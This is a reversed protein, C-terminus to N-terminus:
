QVNPATGGTIVQNLIEQVFIAHIHIHRAVDPLFEAVITGSPDTALGISVRKITSVANTQVGPVYLNSLEASIPYTLLTAYNPMARGDDHQSVWTHELAHLIRRRVPANPLRHYRPDEHTLSSILFTGFFEGQADEVLSYGTLRGWGALGPGFASHANSGVAAASYGTITLLNFPDVTDRVALKAKGEADLPRVARSSVIPQNPNEKRCPELLGGSSLQEGAAAARKSNCLPPKISGTVQQGMGGSAEAEVPELRKDGSANVRVTSMLVAGPSDPLEQAGLCPVACPMAVAVLCALGTKRLVFLHRSRESGARSTWRRQQLAGTQNLKSSLLIPTKADAFVAFM